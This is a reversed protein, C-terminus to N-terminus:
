IQYIEMNAACAADFAERDSVPAQLIAAKINESNELFKLIDQCGTSHGMLVIEGVGRNESIESIFNKLDESDQRLDSSGWGGYSSRLLPQFFRIKRECLFEALSTVYKPQLFGETLGPIFIVSFRSNKAMPLFEIGCLGYPGYQFIDVKM